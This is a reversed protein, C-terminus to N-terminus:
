SSFDCAQEMVSIAHPNKSIDHQIWLSNPHLTLRSDEFNSKNGTLADLIKTAQLLGELGPVTRMRMAFSGIVQLHLTDAAMDAATCACSASLGVRAHKEKKKAPSCVNNAPNPKFPTPAGRFSADGDEAPGLLPWDAASPLSAVTFLNPNMM